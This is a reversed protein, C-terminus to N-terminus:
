SRRRERDEAESQMMIYANAQIRLIDDFLEMGVSRKGEAAAMEHTAEGRFSTRFPTTRELLTWLVARGHYTSLTQRLYEEYAQTDHKVKTKRKKVTGEDGADFAITDEAM